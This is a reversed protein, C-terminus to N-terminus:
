TKLECFGLLVRPSFKKACVQGRFSPDTLSETYGVMGTSFVVEGNVPTESGFSIGNFVTGDELTLRAKVPKTADDCGSVTNVFRATAGRPGNVKSSRALGSGSLFSSLTSRSRPVVGGVRLSLFRSSSM